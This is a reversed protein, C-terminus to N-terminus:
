SVYLQDDRRFEATRSLHVHLSGVHTLLLNEVVAEGFLGKTPDYPVDMVEARQSDSLGFLSLRLTRGDSVALGMVRGCNQM